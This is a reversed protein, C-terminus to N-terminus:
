SDASARNTLHDYDWNLLNNFEAVTLVGESVPSCELVEMGCDEFQMELKAAISRAEALQKPSDHVEAEMMLYCAVKYHQDTELDDFPSINLLIESFLQHNKKLLKGIANSKPKLADNFGDPFAIRTIRKALWELVVRLVKSSIAIEGSIEKKALIERPINTQNWARAEFWLGNLTPFHLHRPNRGHMVESNGSVVSKLALIAATPENALDHHVLDCSQSVVMAFDDKTTPLGDSLGELLLSAPVIVGQRWGRERIKEGINHM